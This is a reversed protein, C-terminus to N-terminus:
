ALYGSAADVAEEGALNGELLLDVLQRGEPQVGSDMRWMARFHDNSLLIRGDVDVVALAQPLSRLLASARATDM